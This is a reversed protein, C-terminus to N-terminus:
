RRSTRLTRALQRRFEIIADHFTDAVEQHHLLRSREVPMQQIKELFLAKHLLAAVSATRSDRLVTSFLRAVVASSLFVSAGGCEAAPVGTETSSAARDLSGPMSRDAGLAPRCSM